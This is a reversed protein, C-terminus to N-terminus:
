RPKPKSHPGGPAIVAGPAKLERLREGLEAIKEERTDVKDALDGKSATEIQMLRAHAEDLTATVTKESGTIFTTSDQKRKNTESAANANTTPYHVKLDCYGAVVKQAIPDCSRIGGGAMARCFPRDGCLALNKAAHSKHFALYDPCSESTEKGRADRACDQRGNLINILSNCGQVGKQGMLDSTLKGCTSAPDTFNALVGCARPIAEALNGKMNPEPDRRFFESCATVADPNHSILARIMNNELFMYWCQNKPLKSMTTEDDKDQDLNALLDCRSGSGAAVAACRYYGTLQSILARKRQQLEPQQQYFTFPLAKAAAAEKIISDPTTASRCSAEDRPAAPPRSLAASTEMEKILTESEALLHDVKEFLAGAAGSNTAVPSPPPAMLPDSAQAALSIFLISVLSLFLPKRLPQNSSYPFFIM